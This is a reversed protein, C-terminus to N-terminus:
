DSNIKRFILFHWNDIWLVRRGGFETLMQMASWFFKVLRFINQLFKFQHNPWLRIFWDPKGWWVITSSIYRRMRSHESKIIWQIIKLISSTCAWILLIARKNQLRWFNASKEQNRWGMGMRIDEKFRLFVPTFMIKSSQNFQRPRRRSNPVLLLIFALMSPHRLLIWLIFSPKQM